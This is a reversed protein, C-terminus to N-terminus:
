NYLDLYVDQDVGREVESIQAPTFVALIQNMKNESSNNANAFSTTPTKKKTKAAALLEKTKKPSGSTTHQEAIRKELKIINQKTEVTPEPNNIALDQNQISSYSSDIIIKQQAISQQKEINQNNLSWFSLGGIVAIAAAAAWKFNFSIIRGEKKQLKTKEIVKDQMSAFFDTPTTFTNKRELNELDFNKM